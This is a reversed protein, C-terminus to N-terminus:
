RTEFHEDVRQYIIDAIEEYFADLESTTASGNDQTCHSLTTQWTDVGSDITILRANVDMCPMLDANTGGFRLGMVTVRLDLDPDILNTVNRDRVAYQVGRSAPMRRVVRPVIFRQVDRVAERVYAEDDTAFFAYLPDFSFEYAETWGSVVLGLAPPAWQTTTDIVGYAILSRAFVGGEDEPVHAAATAWRIGTGVLYDSDSQLVRRSLGTLEHLLRIAQRRSMTEVRLDLVAKWADPDTDPLDDFEALRSLLHHRVQEASLATHEAIDALLHLTHVPGAADLRADLRTLTEQLVTDQVVGAATAPAAWLFCLLLIRTM